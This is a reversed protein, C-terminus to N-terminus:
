KVRKEAGALFEKMGAILADLEEDRIEDLDPVHARLFSDIKEQDGADGLMDFEKQLEPTLKHYVRVVLRQLLSDTIQVLVADKEEQTLHELGLLKIINQTGM